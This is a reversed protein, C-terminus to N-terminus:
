KEVPVIIIRRGNKAVAAMLTEDSSVAFLTELESHTRIEADITEVTKGTRYNVFALHKAFDIQLMRSDRTFQIAGPNQDLPVPKGIVGTRTKAITIEKRNVFALKKGDPSLAVRSGGKRSGEVTVKQTDPNVTALHSTSAVLITRDDLVVLSKPPERFTEVNLLSGRRDRICM